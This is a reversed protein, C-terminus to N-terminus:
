IPSFVGEDIIPSLKSLLPLKAPNTLLTYIEHRNMMTEHHTAIEYATFFHYDVIIENEPIKPAKESFVELVPAILHFPRNPQIRELVTLLRGVKVILGTEEAFERVLCDEITEQPYQKGGPIGWIPGFEKYLNKVLLIKQERILVGFVCNTLIM